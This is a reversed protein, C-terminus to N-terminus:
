TIVDAPMEIHGQGKLRFTVLSSLDDQILLELRDGKTADLKPVAGTRNKIDGNGNMGHNTGGAKDTYPLDYMDLKIDANTKWNTFTRYQGTTGNYGRLVCGNTLATLDGFLDDAAATPFTASLIFSVIHWHELNDPVLNFIKPAALTGTINMDILIQIVTSTAALFDYNLPRDLTVTTGTIDTIRPFTPEVVGNELQLYNGIAFGAVSTFEVEVDEASADLALTTNVGTHQHFYENFMASHIDADHVDLAGGHVNVGAISVQDYYRAYIFSGM